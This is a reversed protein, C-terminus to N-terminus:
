LIKFILVRVLHPMTFQMHRTQEALPKHTASRILFGQSSFTCTVKQNVNLESKECTVTVEAVYVKGHEGNDETTEM